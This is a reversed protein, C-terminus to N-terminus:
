STDCVDTPREKGATSRLTLLTTRRSVSFLDMLRGLALGLIDFLWMGGIMTSLVKASNLIWM